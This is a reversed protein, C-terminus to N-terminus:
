NLSQITESRHKLQTALCCHCGLIHVQLKHVAVLCQVAMPNHLEKCLRVGVAQEEGGSLLEPRQAAQPIYTEQTSTM